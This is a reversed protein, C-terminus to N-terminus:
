RRAPLPPAEARQAETLNRRGLTANIVREGTMRGAAQAPTEGDLMMPHESPHTLRAGQPWGEQSQIFEQLGRLGQVRQMPAPANQDIMLRQTRPDFAGPGNEIQLGRAEPYLDYVSPHQIVDPASARRVGAQEQMWRGGHYPSMEGGPFRQIYQDMYAGLQPERPMNQPAVRALNDPAEQYFGMGPEHGTQTKHWMEDSGAGAQRLERAGQLRRMDYPKVIMGLGVGPLTMGQELAGAYDGRRAAATAEDIQRVPDPPTLMGRVGDAVGQKIDDWTPLKPEPLAYPQAM